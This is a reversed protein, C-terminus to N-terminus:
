EGRYHYFIKKGTPNEVEVIGAGSLTDISESLETANMHRHIRRLLESRGIIGARKIHELVISTNQGSPSSYVYGLAELMGSELATVMHIAEMIHGEEIELLDNNAASLCMATKLIHTHKRGFYGDLKFDSAVTQSGYWEVYAREANPKLTFPGTISQIKNLRAIVAERAAIQDPGLYPLAEKFRRDKGYVFLIRSTFGGGVAEKILARRIGELTSAAMITLCTHRLIEEGRGITRYRWNDQCDYLDCLMPLIGSSLAGPSLFVELERAMITGTGGHEQLYGVLSEPTTKQSSLPVPKELMSLLTAGMELAASKRCVASGAALMIFQNPYIRQFGFEIWVKRALVAALTAMATWVHFPEPSEQKETYKGYDHFFNAQM